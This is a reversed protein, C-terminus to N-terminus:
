ASAALAFTKESKQCNSCRYTLYLFSFGQSLVQATRSTCRFFRMGNCSDDPCHLQIEPTRLIHATKGESHAYEWKALEAIDRLQGPPTSEMFDTYSMYEVQEEVKDTDAM